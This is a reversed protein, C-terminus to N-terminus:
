RSRGLWNVVGVVPADVRLPQSRIGESYLKAILQQRYFEDKFLSGVLYAYLNPSPDLQQVVTEVMVALDSVAKTVIQVCNPEGARALKQVVPAAQAVLHKYDHATVISTKLVAFTPAAYMTLIEDYLQTKELRGDHMKNLVHLGEWGLMFGGGEDSLFHSMGGTKARNGAADRGFCNSGTGAILVVGEGIRSASWLALEVDPLLTIDVQTKMLGFQLLVSGFWLEAREVDAPTDLGALGMVIKTQQLFTATPLRAADAAAELMAALRQSATYQDIVDLNIGQFRDQFVAAAMINQESVSLQVLREAQALPWLMMQSKSGGSDIGLLFQAPFNSSM